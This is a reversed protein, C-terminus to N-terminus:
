EHDGEEQVYAQNQEDTVCNSTLNESINDTMFSKDTNCTGIYRSTTETSSHGFMNCIYKLVSNKM